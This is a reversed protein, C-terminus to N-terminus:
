LGGKLLKYLAVECVKIRLQNKLRLLCLGVGRFDLEFAVEEKFNEEGERAFQTM